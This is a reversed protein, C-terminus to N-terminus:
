FDQEFGLEKMRETERYDTSDLQHAVISIYGDALLRHDASHHNNPNDMYDGQMVWTSVDGEDECKRFERVWKGLGMRGVRVGKIREAPIEPFNVNYYIGFRNPRESLIQEFIKPFLKRVGSFDPDKDTTDLSVGISLIGNLAGEEAAGLTGSYCSATAANSGHNIGSIVIDPPNELFRTNLAFKACSAPTADLYAWEGCGSIGLTGMEEDSLRHYEMVKGGLNVAMSMGSQAHKPAIVTVNGYPAMMEALEKIGKATYGDDNTIFIEM